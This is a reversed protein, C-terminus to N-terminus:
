IPAFHGCHSHADKRMFRDDIFIELTRFHLSLGRCPGGAPVGRFKSCLVWLFSRALARRVDRGGHGRSPRPTGCYLPVVRGKISFHDISIPTTKQAGQLIALSARAVGGGRKREEGSVKSIENESSIQNTTTMTTTTKVNITVASADAQQNSGGNNLITSPRNPRAPRRSFKQASSMQLLAHTFTVSSNNNNSNNIEHHIEIEMTNDSTSPARIKPQIRNSLQVASRALREFVRLPLWLSNEFM